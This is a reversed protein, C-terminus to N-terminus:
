FLGPLSALSDLVFDPRVSSAALAEARYKGTRVLAGRLGAAQAGGVDGELDDGVMLAERPAVGAAELALRFFDPSPKGALAAARGTAYELAAVFPGVDLTLVGDGNLFYRNRALAVLEAGDLVARFARDLADFRWAEGMDGVVVADPREDVLDLGDFDEVLEPAVLAMCRTRGSAVLRDRAARAGTFIREPAVDLGMAALWRVIGARPRSTMNTVFLHPVGRRELAALAEAAGPILAGQQCVTGDIDLLLARAPSDNM